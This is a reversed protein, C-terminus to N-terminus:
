DVSHGVDTTLNAVVGRPLIRDAVGAFPRIIVQKGDERRLLVVVGEVVFKVADITTQRNLQGLADVLQVM